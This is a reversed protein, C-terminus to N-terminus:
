RKKLKPKHEKRYSSMTQGLQRHFFRSLKSTSDFGLYDALEKASCDTYLLRRVAESMLRQHILDLPTGRGSLMVKRTLTKPTCHLLDAYDQVLKHTRYHEDILNIYSRVLEHDMDKEIHSEGHRLSARTAQIIYLRLWSRLAEEHYRDEGVFERRIESLIHEITLRESEELQVHPVFSSGNFLQGRCSVEHDNGFICYFRDDFLVLAYHAEAYEEKPKSLILHQLPSLAILEGAKIETPYGDISASVAGSMMYLLTFQGNIHYDNLVSQEIYKIGGGILSTYNYSLTQKM